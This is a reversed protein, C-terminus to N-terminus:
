SERIRERMDHLFQRFDVYDHAISRPLYLTATAQDMRDLEAILKSKDQGAAHAKEISELQRFLRRLRM